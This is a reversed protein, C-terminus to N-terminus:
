KPVPRSLIIELPSYDQTFLSRVAAEVIQEQNYTVLVLTVLPNMRAANDVIM